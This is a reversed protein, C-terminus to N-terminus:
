DRLGAFSAVIGDVGDARVVEFDVVRGDTLTVTLPDPKLMSDSASGEITAILECPIEGIVNKAKGLLGGRKWILLRQETLGLAVQAAHGIGALDAQARGEAANEGTLKAGLMLGGAGGAVAGAAGAVIAATSGRTMARCGALLSEGPRLEKAAVKQMKPTYEGM